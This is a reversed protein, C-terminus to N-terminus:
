IKLEYLKIMMQGYASLNVLDTYLTGNAVLNIDASVWHTKHTHQAKYFGSFDVRYSLCVAKSLSFFLKMTTNNCATTDTATTEHRMKQTYKM